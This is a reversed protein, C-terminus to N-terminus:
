LHKVHIDYVNFMCSFQSPEQTCVKKSFKDLSQVIVGQGEPGIM